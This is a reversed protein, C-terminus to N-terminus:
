PAPFVTLTVLLSPQTSPLHRWNEPSFLTNTVIYPEVYSSPFHPGQLETTRGGHSLTEDTSYPVFPRIGHHVMLFLHTFAAGSSVLHTPAGDSTNAITCQPQTLNPTVRLTWGVLNNVYDFNEGDDEAHLERISHGRYNCPDTPGDVTTPLPVLPPLLPVSPGDNRNSSRRTASREKTTTIRLSLFAELKLAVSLPRALDRVLM